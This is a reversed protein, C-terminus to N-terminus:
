AVSVQGVFGTQNTGSYTQSLVASTTPLDTSTTNGVVYVNYPTTSANPDVAVANGIDTGKGGFVNEPDGDMNQTTSDDTASFHTVQVDIGKTPVSHPDGTNMGAAPDYAAGTVIVSGDSLVVLNNGTWDGARAASASGSRDDVFWTNPANASLANQATPTLRYLLLDQNLPTPTGQPDGAMTSSGNDNLSGTIVVNGNPDLAVATGVGGPGPTINSFFIPWDNPITMGDANLRGYTAFTENNPDGIAGITGAFYANGQSDLVLGGGTTVAVNAPVFGGNPGPLEFPIAVSYNPNVTSLDSSLQFLLLDLQGQTTQDGVSGAVYVNGSSDTTVAAFSAGPPAPPTFQPGLAGTNADLEIVFGDTQPTSTPDAFSGVVYVNNGNLALGTASDPGPATASTPMIQMIWVVSSGDGALKAAFADARGTNDTISGVVYLFNTGGENRAVVYNVSDPGTSSGLYSLFNVAAQNGAAGGPEPLTTALTLPAVQILNSSHALAIHQVTPTHLTIAQVPRGPQLSVGSSVPASPTAPAAASAPQAPKAVGIPSQPVSAMPTAPGPQLIPSKAAAALVMPHSPSAASFNTLNDNTLNASLSNILNSALNDVRSNAPLSSSTAAAVSAVAIALNENQVGPATTLVVDASTSTPTPRSSEFSTQSVLVPSDMSSQDLISLRDALLSWGYGSGTIISGPQLRSELKEVLPRFASRLKLCKM